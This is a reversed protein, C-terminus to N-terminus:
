ECALALSSGQDRAMELCLSTTDWRGTGSGVEATHWHVHGLLRAGSGPAAPAPQGEAFSFAVLRTRVRRPPAHPFPNLERSLLALVAPDHRLIGGLLGELWAPPEYAAGQRKCGLPLFWLRWDLRPLHLLVWPPRIAANWPKYRFGYTKWEEDDETGQIIIEWRFDHMSGFKAYYNCARYRRARRYFFDCWGCLKVSPWHVRDRAAQALPPLSAAVYACLIAAIGLRGGATIVCFLTGIVVSHGAGDDGGSDEGGAWPLVSDDLLSLSEAVSLAGIMGYNGTLNIAVNIGVFGACALLRAAQLPLAGVLPLAIEVFFTARCTLRHLAAPLRHAVISMPNPLPQTYYHSQMATGARWMPSGYFKCLGCGLMKRKALFRLVQLSACVTADDDGGCVRFLALVALLASTECLNSDSQLGLFDGSVAILSMHTVYCVAWLVSAFPGSSFCLILSALFGCLCTAQLAGNSAGIFWFVTPFKDVAKFREKWSRSYWESATFRRKMVTVAPAIGTTGILGKLQVGFSLFSVASVFALAREVLMLTARVQYSKTALGFAACLVSFQTHIAAVFLINWWAGSEVLRDITFAPLFASSMKDPPHRRKM